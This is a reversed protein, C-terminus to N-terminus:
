NADTFPEAVIIADLENNRLQQGLNATFNEELLLPMDPASAHLQPILRPLLYPGVTYIVGLRLQGKLEDKGQEAITQLTTVEGLIRYAQDIVRRGVPTVRAEGRSREFVTVGLEQELKRV